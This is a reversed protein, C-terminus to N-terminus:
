VLGRNVEELEAKMQALDAETIEIAELLSEKGCDVKKRKLAEGYDFGDPAEFSVDVEGVYVIHDFPDDVGRNYLLIYDDRGVAHLHRRQTIKM